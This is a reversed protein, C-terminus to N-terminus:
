SMLNKIIMGFGILSVLMSTIFGVYPILTILSLVIDIILIYLYINLKKSCKNKVFTAVSIIFIPKAIILFM